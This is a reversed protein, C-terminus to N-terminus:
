KKKTTKKKTPKKQVIESLEKELKEKAMREREAIEEPTPIYPKPQPQPAPKIRASLLTKHLQSCREAVSLGNSKVVSDLSTIIDDIDEKTMEVIYLQENSM